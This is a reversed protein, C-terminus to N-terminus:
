HSEVYLDHSMDHSMLIVVGVETKGLIKYANYVLEYRKSDFSEAIQYLARELEDEIITHVDALSVSM